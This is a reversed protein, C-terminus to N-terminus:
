GDAGYGGGVVVVGNKRLIMESLSIPRPLSPGMVFGQLIFCSIVAGRERERERERGERGRV